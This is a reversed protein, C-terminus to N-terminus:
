TQRVDEPALALQAEIITPVNFALANAGITARAHVGSDGFLENILDSFGDGVRTLSPGSLGPIANVYVTARLWSVTELDGVANVLSSLIALTTLRASEYGDEVTLEDGVCGQLLITQGDIPGHGSVFVMGGAVRVFAFKQDAGEPMRWPEPLQLRLDQLRRSPTTSM